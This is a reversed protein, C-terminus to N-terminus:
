RLSHSTIQIREINLFKKQSFLSACKAVEEESLDFDPNYKGRTMELIDNGSEMVKNNFVMITNPLKGQMIYDDVYRRATDIAYLDRYFKRHVSGVVFIVNEPVLTSRSFLSDVAYLYKTNVLSISKYDEAIGYSNVRPILHVFLPNSILYDANHLAISDDKSKVKDLLTSSYGNSRNKLNEDVEKRALEGLEHNINELTNFFNSSRYVHYYGDALQNKLMKQLLSTDVKSYVEIICKNENLSLNYEFTDLVALRKEVLLKLDDENQINTTFNCAVSYIPERKSCSFFFFNLLLFLLARNM